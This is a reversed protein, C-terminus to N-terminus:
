GADEELRRVQQTTVQPSDAPLEFITLGNVIRTPRKSALGRRVLESAARGLPVRRSEAYKKILPFVDDDLNITTRVSDHHRLQNTIDFKNSHM